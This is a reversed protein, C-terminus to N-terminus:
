EWELTLDAEAFTDDSLTFTLTRAPINSDGYINLKAPNAVNSLKEPIFKNEDWKYRIDSDDNEIVEAPEIEADLLTKELVEEYTKDSHSSVQYDSPLEEVEWGVKKIYPDTLGTSSYEYYARGEIGCITYDKYIRESISDNTESNIEDESTVERYLNPVVEDEVFKELDNQFQSQIRHESIRPALLVLLLILGIVSGCVITVIRKLKRTKIQEEALLKKRENEFNILEAQHKQDSEVKEKALTEKDFHKKLDEKETGCNFCVFEDKQNISGCTCCWIDEYSDDFAYEAYKNYHTKYFQTLAESELYELLSTYTIYYGKSIKQNKWSRKVLSDNIFTVKQIQIDFYKINYNDLYIPIRDGFFEERQVELNEYKWSISNVLKNNADDYGNITVEASLITSDIINQFKMQVLTDRKKIDSLLRGKTCVIPCFPIHLNEELEYLVSYRSNQM